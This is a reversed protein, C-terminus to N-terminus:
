KVVHVSAGHSSSEHTRHRQPITQLLGMCKNLLFYYHQLDDNKLLIITNDDYKLHSIGGLILDSLMGCIHGTGSAVDLITSLTEVIFKFLLPSIPHEQM